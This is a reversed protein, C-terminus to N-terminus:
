ELNRKENNKSKLFGDIIGKLELLYEKYNIGELKCVEIDLRIDALLRCIMQHRALQNLAKGTDKPDTYQM